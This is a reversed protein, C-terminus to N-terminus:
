LVHGVESDCHRPKGKEALTPSLALFQGDPFVAGVRGLLRTFIEETVLLQNAGLLMEQQKSVM